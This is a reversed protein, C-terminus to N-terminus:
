YVLKIAVYIAPDDRIGFQASNSNFTLGSEANCISNFIYQGVIKFDFYSQYASSQSVTVGGYGGYKFSTRYDFLKGLWLYEAASKTGEYNNMLEFGFEYGKLNIDAGFTQGNRIDSKYFHNDTLFLNFTFRDGFDIHIRSFIQMWFNDDTANLNSVNSGWIGAKFQPHLNAVFSANMAPNNDSYSLGKVIYHSWLMADGSVLNRTKDREKDQALCYTTLAVYTLLFLFCKM